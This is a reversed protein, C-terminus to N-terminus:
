QLKELLVVSSPAFYKQPCHVWPAGHMMVYSIDPPYLSATKKWLQFHGWSRALWTQTNDFNRGVCHNHDPLSHGPLSTPNSWFSLASAEWHSLFLLHAFHSWASSAGNGSKDPALGLKIECTCGAARGTSARGATAATSFLLCICVFIFTCIFLCLYLSFAAFKSSHSFLLFLVSICLFTCGIDLVWGYRICM